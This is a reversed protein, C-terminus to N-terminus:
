CNRFVAFDRRALFVCRDVGLRLFFVKGVWQVMALTEGGCDGRLCVGMVACWCFGDMFRVVDFDTDM